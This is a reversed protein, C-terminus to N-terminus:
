RGTRALPAPSTTAGTRPRRVLLLVAFAILWVTWLIYGLFNATDVLALGAPSLVGVAILVASVTGLATFWRGALRRHLAALVLLTWAATFVYGLTEGVLNGLVFHATEFAERGHV